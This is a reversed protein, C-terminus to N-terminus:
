FTREASEVIALFDRRISDIDRVLGQHERLYLALDKDVSEGDKGPLMENSRNKFMSVFTNSNNSGFSSEKVIEPTESLGLMKGAKRPLHTTM